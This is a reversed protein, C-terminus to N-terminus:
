EYCTQLQSSHNKIISKNAENHPDSHLLLQWFELSKKIKAEEM